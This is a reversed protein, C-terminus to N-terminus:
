PSSKVLIARPLKVVDWSYCITPEPDAPNHLLAHDSRSQSNEAVDKLVKKKKFNVLM